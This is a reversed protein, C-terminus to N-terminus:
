ALVEFEHPYDGEMGDSWRIWYLHYMSDEIIKTILGIDEYNYKVLTGVTLM